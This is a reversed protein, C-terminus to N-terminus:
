SIRQYEFCSGLARRGRPPPCEPSGTLLSRAFGDATDGLSPDASAERAVIELEAQLSATVEGTATRVALSSLYVLAKGHSDLVDAATLWPRSSRERLIPTQPMGCLDVAVGQKGGSLRL